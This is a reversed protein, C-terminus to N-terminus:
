CLYEGLIKDISAIDSLDVRTMGAPNFQRLEVYDRTRRVLEKILVSVHSAELAGQLRVVVDDGIAVASQPSIVLHRGPRFRPWMSDGVMTIAYADSDRALSPPRPLDGIVKDPALLTLESPPNAGPWDGGIETSLIPLPALPAFRWGGGPRFDSVKGTRGRTSGQDPQKDLRLAEFEALSSGAAALLRELTRRSPNGHRRIDAWITRSVGATVAWGNASLGDPRLRM